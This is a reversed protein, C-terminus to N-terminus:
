CINYTACTNYSVQNNNNYWVGNSWYGNTNNNYNNNCLVAGCWVNNNNYNNNYVGNGCGYLGCNNNYVNNNFNGLVNNNYTGTPSAYPNCPRAYSYFHGGGEFDTGSTYCTGSYFNGLSLIGNNCGNFLGVCMLTSSTHGQEIAQVQQPGEGFPGVDVNGSVLMAGVSFVVAYLIATLAVKMGLGGVEWDVLSYQTAYRGITVDLSFV